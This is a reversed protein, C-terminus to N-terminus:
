PRGDPRSGVNGGDASTPTTSASGVTGHPLLMAVALFVAVGTVVVVLTWAVRLVDHGHAVALVLVPLALWIMIESISALGPRGMGRIVDTLTRRVGLAVGALLLVQAIPAAGAFDDGFFLVVLRNMVVMVPLAVLACAGISLAVYRVAVARQAEADSHAAVDPYAVIGISQGVFRPLNSFAAAVVYLGLDRAGFMAGVLIQDLAFSDVPSVSSPVGRLGFRMIARLGQEPEAGERESRGWATTALLGGGLWACGQVLAVTTLTASGVAWLILLGASYVIAPVLRIANFQGFRRRGQLGALGYQFLIVGPLAIISGGLAGVASSPLMVVLFLFQIVSLIAAQGILLRRIARLDRSGLQGNAAFYTIALPVGLLGVQGLAFTALTAGALWGRDVPGLMRAAVVGSAILAGQGILAVTLSGVLARTRRGRDMGTIQSTM